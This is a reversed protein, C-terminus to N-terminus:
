EWETTGPPKSTLDYAVRSVGSLKLLEGVIEELAQEPFEVGPIAVDGTMYDPTMFPRIAISRYGPKGFDMPFSVVPVQSLSEDLGYKRLVVNVTYDAERLQEIVDYSLLTPTISLPQEKLKDGFVYVVRNIDPIARPIQQARAVLNQWDLVEGSLAALYGYKRGDGGVGVTRVPLLHAVVKSDGFEKLQETINEFRQTVFPREACLIRIALGPGPFPQRWIFEHPLGLKEGLERVEDKHLEQLPEIVRGGQRLNRILPSDNHHTKIVQARSSAMKSASEILDPRLTGQALVVNDTAWGMDDIVKDMVKAFTDGIIVRKIEPDVVSHLPPPEEGNIITTAAYFLERADTVSLKIGKKSLAERVESSEDKRMFGTDVHVTHIQKEPLAERLLAACVTSDVGGSVFALVQRGRATERIYRVANKVRDELPYDAELSAVDFLFNALMDTGHDTTFVEPHFQVGYIRRQEDSIAAAVDLSTATIRFGPAAGTVSDGHSMMVRQQSEMCNFLPDSPDVRINVRGYEGHKSNDVQGGFHKVILQMGYCIGLIPKGLEYIRPDPVPPTSAYVSEPGGSIIIADYHELIDAETELPLIHSEIMLQRVSRDILKGYQAGADLIAVRNNRKPGSEFSSEREGISSM